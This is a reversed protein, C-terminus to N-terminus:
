FCQSEAWSTETKTELGSFCGLPMNCILILALSHCLYSMNFYVQSHTHLMECIFGSNVDVIASFHTTFLTCLCETDLLFMCCVYCCLLYSVVIRGTCPQLHVWANKSVKWRDHSRVDILLRWFRHSFSSRDVLAPKVIFRLTNQFFFLCCQNCENQLHAWFDKPNDKENM